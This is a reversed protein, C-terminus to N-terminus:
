KYSEFLIVLSLFIASYILAKVIPSLRELDRFIQVSDQNTKM